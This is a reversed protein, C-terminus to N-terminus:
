ISTAWTIKSINLMSGCKRNFKSSVHGIMTELNIIHHPKLFNLMGYYCLTYLIDAKSINTIKSIENISFHKCKASKLKDLVTYAWYNRFSVLGLDSLPREPTGIKGEIKSIEYSFEILFRGYGKRQYPPLILICAM